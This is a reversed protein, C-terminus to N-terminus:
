SIKKYREDTLGNAIIVAGETAQKAVKGRSELTRLQPKYSLMDFINEFRKNMGKVLIPIRSFRDSLYIVSPKISYLLAM